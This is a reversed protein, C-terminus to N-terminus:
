TAGAKGSDMYPELGSQTRYDLEVQAAFDRASLAIFDSYRGVYFGLVSYYEAAIRRTQETWHEIQMPTTYDSVVVILVARGKTLTAARAVRRLGDLIRSPLETPESAYKLEFLIPSLERDVVADIEIAEGPALILSVPSIVKDPNYIEELKRLLAQECTSIEARVNTLNELPEGTPASSAETISEKADRDLKAEKEVETLQRLEVRERRLGIDEREDIVKQRKAWGVLGYASLGIGGLFGVLVFWPLITTGFSLYEQRRLLADRATPTIKGLTSRTVLLDQQLKLFLGALSLTGAAIAVGLTAFYRRLHTQDTSLM